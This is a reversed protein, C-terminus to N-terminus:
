GTLNLPPAASQGPTAAPYVTVPVVTSQVPSSTNDITPNFYSISIGADSSLFSHVEIGFCNYPFGSNCGPLRTHVPKTWPGQPTKSVLIQQEGDLGVADVMVFLGAKAFYDVSPKMAFDHGPMDMAVAQAQTGAFDSGNWFKYADAKAAQAPEVRGVFCTGSPGCRYVYIFGDKLTGGTGYLGEGTGPKTFLQEQVVQATLPAGAAPPKKPDYVFQALGMDFFIDDTMQGGDAACVSQYYILVRDRGDERLPVASQIWMFRHQNPKCPNYAATPALFRYPLKKDDLAEIVVTPASKTAFGATTNTFLQLTSATSGAKQDYQTSDCFMWMIKGDSMPVSVPCDRRITHIPSSDPPAVPVPATPTGAVVDYGGSSGAAPGSTPTSTLTSATPGAVAGPDSAACAPTVAALVAVTAALLPWGARGRRTRSREGATAPDRRFPAALIDNM